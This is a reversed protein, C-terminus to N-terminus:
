PKIAEQEKKLPAIKDGEQLFVGARAVVEQEQGIGEVLLRDQGRLLIKVPHRKAVNNENILVYTGNADEQLSTAPLTLGEQSALVLTARGFMGVPIFDPTDLSLRVMATRTSSDIHPSIIRIKANIKEANGTLSVQAKTDTNISALSFEPVIIELESKGDAAIKFLPEGGQTLDGVSVSRSYVIGAEPSIIETRKVNLRANEAQAKLSEYAAKKQAVSELSVAGTDKIKFVRDYEDKARELEAGLQNSQNQITQADLRVLVQGKTVSDGEDALVELIRAGSVEATVTIDEKPIIVGSSEIIQEVTGKVVSAMTVSMVAESTEAPAESEGHMLQYWVIVLGAFILIWVLRSVSIKM